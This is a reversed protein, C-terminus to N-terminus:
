FVAPGLPRMAYRRPHSPDFYLPFKEGVRPHRYFWGIKQKGKYTKGEVTYRFTIRYHNYSIGQPSKETRLVRVGTIVATAVSNRSFIYEENKGIWRRM